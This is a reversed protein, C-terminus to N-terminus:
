PQKQLTYTTTQDHTLDEDRVAITRGDEAVTMRFEDVIKGDRHDTEEITWADIKQLVVTTKGSDANVPYEKGDFKADYSQGAWSMKFGDATMKYQIARVADDADFGQQRWTGSVPHSGAPAAAVRRETLTGTVEQDGIHNRFQSTLTNGDASVTDVMYAFEKGDKKLTIEISDPGTVKVIATDYYTHDIVPHETGDAEVHLDPLCSSCSYEGKTLSYVDPKGTVSVSKLDIKWSGDFPSAALACSSFLLLLSPTVKM